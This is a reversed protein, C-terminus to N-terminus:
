QSAGATRLTAAWHLDRVHQVHCSTCGPIQAKMPSMSPEHFDEASHCKGCTNGPSKRDVNAGMAGTTHCSSCSLITNGNDDVIGEVGAVVRVHDLHIGHFQANRWAQADTQQIKNKALFAKVEPKQDLEEADLGKWIWLGNLVPYGFTGGHPTRVSKGNYTSHNQDNHCKACSQLAANLPRYDKGRHETHCHTCSIGAARHAPIISAIFSETHHCNACNANMKERNSISVGIAHCSTCAGSNARLAIAPFLTFGSRTHPDSVSEPAFAEKHAFAAIASLIGVAIVAWLFIAFPWPRILDRTPWWNFRVKGLRPPTRPHLPSPRGAKERTRKDWFVKLANTADVFDGSRKTKAREFEDLQGTPVKLDESGMSSHLLQKQHAELQHVPERAGADFAFELSVDIALTETAQDIKEIRLFYPGIQIEDGTVLAEAENFPIVRGNLTTASSASLNILYFYGEIESIGAHLRSVKPHNLWIDADPLRGIRVGESVITKPNEALDKRAIIFKSQQLQAM